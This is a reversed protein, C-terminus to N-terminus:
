QDQRQCGAQTPIDPIQTSVAHLIVASFCALVGILGLFAATLALGLPFTGTAIYNAVTWYAFAAGLLTVVVGPIGIAAIPREQGITEVLNMILMVGHRIASHTSADEIDYDVTTPEKVIDYDHAHAHQLIDTSAGM